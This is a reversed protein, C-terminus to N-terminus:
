NKKDYACKQAFAGHRKYEQEDTRSPEDAYCFYREATHKPRHASYDKDEDKRETDIHKKGFTFSCRQKFPAKYNKVTLPDPVGREGCQTNQRQYDAAANEHRVRRRRYFKRIRELTQKRREFLYM